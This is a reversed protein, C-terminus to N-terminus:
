NSLQIHSTKKAWLYSPCTTWVCLSVCLWVCVCECVCVCCTVVHCCPTVHRIDSLRNKTKTELWTTAMSDITSRTKSSHKSGAFAPNSSGAFAAMNERSKCGAFALGGSGHHLTLTQSFLYKKHLGSPHILSSSSSSASSSSSTNSSLVAALLINPCLWGLM